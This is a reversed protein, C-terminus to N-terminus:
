PVHCRGMEHDLLQRFRSRAYGKARMQRLTEITEKGRDTLHADDGFSKDHTAEPKTEYYVHRIATWPIHWCRMMSSNDSIPKEVLLLRSDIGKLIGTLVGVTSDVFAIHVEQGVILDNM